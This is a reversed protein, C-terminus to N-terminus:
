EGKNPTSNLYQQAIEKLYVNITGHLIIMVEPASIRTDDFDFVMKNNVLRICALIDPNTKYLESQETNQPKVPETM